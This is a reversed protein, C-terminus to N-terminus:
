LLDTVVYSNKVQDILKAPCDTVSLNQNHYNKLAIRKDKGLFFAFVYSAKSLLQASASMRAPPPKPSDAMTIFYENTNQVSPHNPFLAGVHGDEGVGLLLIDYKGGFRKLEAQYGTTGKDRRNPEYIFPHVNMQPLREKKILHDIFTKKALKFNSLDDYIPVLREDVMFLHIKQWNIRQDTKLLKFVAAVSRGGAIALVVQEQHKLLQSTAAALQDVVQENLNKGSISEAM